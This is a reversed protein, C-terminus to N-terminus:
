SNLEKLFSSYDVVMQILAYKLDSSFKAATTASVSAPLGDVTTTFKQMYANLSQMAGENSTVASEFTEAVTSANQKLTSIAGEVDNGKDADFIIQQLDDITQPVIDFCAKVADIQGQEAGIKFKLTGSKLNFVTSDISQQKLSTKVDNANDSDTYGAILVRYLNGDYAVYGAGGQAQLTSAATKANSEDSFAGTQLAFLSVEKATIELEAREGSVGPLDVPKMTDDPTSTESTGTKTPPAANSNGSNFVPNIINEAIWSGAAGAGILYAAIGLIIIVIVFNTLRRKKKPPKTAMRSYRM